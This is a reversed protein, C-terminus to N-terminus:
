GKNKHPTNSKKPQAAVKYPGKQDQGAGKSINEKVDFRKEGKGKRPSKESIM